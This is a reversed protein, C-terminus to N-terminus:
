RWDYYVSIERFVHALDFYITENEHKQWTTAWPIQFTCVTLMLSIAILHSQTSSHNMGPFHLYCKATPFDWLSLSRSYFSTYFLTHTKVTHHLWLFGVQIIETVLGLRVSCSCLMWRVLSSELSIKMPTFKMLILTLLCNFDPHHSMPYALHPCSFPISWLLDGEYYLLSSDNM